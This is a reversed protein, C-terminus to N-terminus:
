SIESKAECAPVEYITQRASWDKADSQRQHCRLRAFLKAFSSPRWDPERLRLRRVEVEILVENSDGVSIGLAKELEESEKRQAFDRIQRGFVALDRLFSEHLLYQLDNHCVLCVKLKSTTLIIFM